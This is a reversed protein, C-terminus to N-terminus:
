NQLITKWISLQRVSNTGAEHEFNSTMSFQRVGNTGAEHQFIELRRGLAFQWVCNTAAVHQGFKKTALQLM